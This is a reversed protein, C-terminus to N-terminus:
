VKMVVTPRGKKKQVAVVPTEPEPTSTPAPTPAEDKIYHRRLFRQMNLYTVKTEDDHIDFLSRLKDDLNIQQGNKLNHEKTYASIAKTVDSRSIQTDVSIGLFEQLEQSVKMPRKFVNNKSRAEAKEGTPDNLHALIKRVDKHLSKISHELSELSAM